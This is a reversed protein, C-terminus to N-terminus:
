HLQLILYMMIVSGGMGILAFVPHLRWSAPIIERTVIYAMAGAASAIAMGLGWPSTQILWQSALTGLPLFLSVGVVLFLIMGIRRRGALFPAALAVGEPVNHLAISLAIIAGLKEHAHFGAGIAMGEPFNHFAMAIAIMWGLRHVDTLTESFFFIFRGAITIFGIGALIGGLVIKGPAQELASPLLEVLVMLSMIGGALGLYMAMMRHDPEKFWIVTLAGILTTMGTLFSIILSETM